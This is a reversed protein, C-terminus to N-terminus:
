LLLRLMSGVLSLRPLERGSPFGPPCLSCSPWTKRCTGEWLLLFMGPPSSREKAAQGLLEAFRETGGGAEVWPGPWEGPHSLPSRLSVFIIVMRKM